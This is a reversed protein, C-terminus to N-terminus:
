GRWLTWCGGFAIAVVYPLPGRRRIRWREVSWLRSLLSAGRVRRAPAPLRRLLIHAAALLGGAIATATFFGAVSRLPLVCCMAAIMKVDGGGFMGRAHLLSLAVFAAIAVLMSWSLPVLGDGFPRLALAAVALIAPYRNPIIRAVIDAWAASVLVVVTLGGLFPSM